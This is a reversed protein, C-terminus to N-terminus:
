TARGSAHTQWRKLRDLIRSAGARDGLRLLTSALAINVLVAAALRAYARVRSRRAEPTLETLGYPEPPWSLPVDGVPLTPGTAALTALKEVRALLRAWDDALEPFLAPMGLYREELLRRAADAVALLNGLTACALCWSFWRDACTRDSPVEEPSIGTRVELKFLHLQAELTDARLFGPELLEEARSNLIWALDILFVVDRGAQWAALSKERPGIATSSAVAAEAQARVRRGPEADPPQDALWAEYATSSGHAQAEALWHRVAVQASMSQELRYLREDTNM